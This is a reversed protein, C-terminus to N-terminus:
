REWCDADAFGSGYVPGNQTIRFSGCADNTQVGTPAATVTYSSAGTSSITINYYGERSTSGYALSAATAYAVNNARWKEQELRIDALSAMADGRRAKEVFSQYAPYAISALIAVVAVVIMLEILSFGSQLNQNGKM